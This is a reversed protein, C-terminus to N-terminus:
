ELLHARLSTVQAPDLGATTLYREVSGHRERLESLFLVMTGPVSYFWPRMVAETRGNSRAWAIYRLNGATSMAYDADIDEDAVGLTALTLAILVGTRDKGAVCHVVAPAAREDALVGIAAALGAAGEEAMDRYRDALYRIPEVGDQYPTHEWERHEPAINHYSLGHWEPVRGQRALEYSRRLDVVTRIALAEFTARDDDVLGSLSDSRFLRRWRVLRGDQGPYGGLDRFNFVQSFRYERQV